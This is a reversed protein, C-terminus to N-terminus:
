TTKLEEIESLSLDTYTIITQIDLGSSLMKRAVTLREETRGKQEGAKLGEQYRGTLLTKETSVTGWYSEYAQLESPNYASEEVLSVAEKIEPIALLEESKPDLYRSM